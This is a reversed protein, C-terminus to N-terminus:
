YHGGDGDNNHRTVVDVAGVRNNARPNHYANKHGFAATATVIASLYLQQQEVAVVNNVAIADGVYALVFASAVHHDHAAKDTNSESRFWHLADFM